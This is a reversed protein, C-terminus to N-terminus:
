SSRRRQPQTQRNALETPPIQTLPPLWEDGLNTEISVTDEPDSKQYFPKFKWLRNDINTEVSLAVNDKDGRYEQIWRSIMKWVAKSIVNWRFTTVRM